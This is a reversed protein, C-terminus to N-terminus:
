GAGTGMFGRRELRTIVDYSFIVNTQGIRVPGGDDRGSGKALVRVSGCGDSCGSSGSM